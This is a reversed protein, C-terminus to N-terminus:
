CATSVYANTVTFWLLQSVTQGRKYRWAHKNGESKGYKYPVSASTTSMSLYDHAIVRM